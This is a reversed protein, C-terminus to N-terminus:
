NIPTRVSSIDADYMQHCKTSKQILRCYLIALSIWRPKDPM